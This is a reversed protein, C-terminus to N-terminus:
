NFSIWWASPSAVSCNITKRKHCEITYNPAAKDTAFKSAEWQFRCSLKVWRPCPGWLASFLLLCMLVPACLAFFLYILRHINHSSINLISEFLYISIPTQQKFSVLLFDRPSSSTASIHPLLRIGFCDYSWMFEIKIASYTLKMYARQNRSGNQRNKRRRNNIEDFVSSSLSWFLTNRPSTFM